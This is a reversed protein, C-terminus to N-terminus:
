FLERRLVLKERAQGARACLSRFKGLYVRPNNFHEVLFFTLRARSPLGLVAGQSARIDQLGRHTAPPVNFSTLHLLAIPRQFFWGMELSEWGGPMPTLCVRARWGVYSLLLHEVGARDAGASM